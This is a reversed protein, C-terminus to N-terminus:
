MAQISIICNHVHCHDGIAGRGRGNEETLGEALVGFDLVACKGVEGGPRSGADVRQAAQQAAFEVIEGSGIGNASGDEAHEVSQMLNSGTQAQSASEALLSEALEGQEQDQSADGM